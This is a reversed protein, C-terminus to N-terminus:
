EDNVEQSASLQFSDNAKNHEAYLQAQVKYRLSLAAIESKFYEIYEKNLAFHGIDIHLDLKSIAQASAKQFIDELYVRINKKIEAVPDGIFDKEPPLPNIDGSFFYGQDAIRLSVASSPIFHNIMGTEARELSCLNQDSFDLQENKGTVVELYSNKRFVPLNSAYFGAFQHLTKKHVFLKTPIHNFRIYRILDALRACHDHHFHTQYVKIDKVLEPYKRNLAKIYNVTTPNGTDVVHLTKGILKMHTTEDSSTYITKGQVLENLLLKNIRSRRKRARIPKQRVDQSIFTIKDKIYNRMKQLSINLDGIDSETLAVQHKITTIAADMRNVLRKFNFKSTKVVEYKVRKQFEEPLISCKIGGDRGNGTTTILTPLQMAASYSLLRITLNQGKFGKPFYGNPPAILYNCVFQLDASSSSNVTLEEVNSLDEGKAFLLLLSKGVAIGDASLINIACKKGSRVIQVHKDPDIFGSKQPVIETFRVPNKIATRQSFIKNFM